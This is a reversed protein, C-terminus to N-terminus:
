YICWACQLIDHIWYLVKWSTWKVMYKVHKINGLFNGNLGTEPSSSCLTRDNHLSWGSSANFASTFSGSDTSEMLLKKTGQRVVSVSFCCMFILSSTTAYLKKLYRLCTDLLFLRSKVAPSFEVTAGLRFLEQWENLIVWSYCIIIHYVTSDTM